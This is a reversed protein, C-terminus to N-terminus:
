DTMIRNLKFSDEGHVQFNSVEPLQFGKVGEPTPYTTKETNAFIKVHNATCRGVFAFRTDDETINPYSGHMNLSTFIVCEGAKMTLDVVEAEQFLDPLLQTVVKFVAQSRIFSGTSFFAAKLLVDLQKAPLQTLMLMLDDQAFNYMQELRADKFTGPMLRMAGNEVTVDSLAVWATLQVIPADMEQTLELKNSAATERFVSNQHWFTGVSGPKKEFFQSRWCLVEEGLISALRDAIAPKRLLERYEKLRLGQYLGGVNINWADHRKLIEPIEKGLYCEGDFDSNFQNEALKRLEKAEEESIVRFPSIYGRKEFAQIETETLYANDSAPQLNSRKVRLQIDKLEELQQAMQQRKKAKLPLVFIKYLFILIKVVRVKM